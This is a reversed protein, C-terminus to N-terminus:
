GENRERIRGRRVQKTRGGELRKKKGRDKHRLENKKWRREEICNRIKKWSGYKFGTWQLYKQQVPDTKTKKCIM